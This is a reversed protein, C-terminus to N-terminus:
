LSASTRNKSALEAARTHTGAPVHLDTSFRLYKLTCQCVKAKFAPKLGVARALTFKPHTARDHSDM